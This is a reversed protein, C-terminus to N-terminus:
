NYKIPPRLRVAAIGGLGSLFLLLMTPEPISSAKVTISSAELIPDVIMFGVADSLDIAGFGLASTGQTLGTFALTVLTFSEPQLADLEFDFLFSFEDLSVSGAAVTTLIDTEFLDVPNGLMPGYDASDFTLVSNDFTVEVLFAGLSPPVFGGLGSINLDVTVTDGVGIDQSSPDLSLTVGFVAGSFITTSCLLAFAAVLKKM